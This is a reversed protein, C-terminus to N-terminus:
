FPNCMIPMCRCYPFVHPNFEFEYFWEWAVDDIQHTFMDMGCWCYITVPLKCTPCFLHEWEFIRGYYEVIQREGYEGNRMVPHVAYIEIFDDLGTIEYEYDMKGIESICRELTGFYVIEDEDKRPCCKKLEVMYIKNQDIKM